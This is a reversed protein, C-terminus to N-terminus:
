FGLVFRILDMIDLIQNKEGRLKLIPFFLWEKSCKSFNLEKFTFIFLYIFLYIFLFLFIKFKGKELLSQIVVQQFIIPIGDKDKPIEGKKLKEFILNLDEEM